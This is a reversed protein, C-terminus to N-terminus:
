YKTHTHTSVGHTLSHLQLGVQKQLTVTCTTCTINFQITDEVNCLMKTCAGAKKKQTVELCADNGTLGKHTTIIYQIYSVNCVELATSQIAAWLYHSPNSELKLCCHLLNM